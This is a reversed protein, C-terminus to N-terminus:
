RWTKSAAVWSRSFEHINIVPESPMSAEVSGTCHSSGSVPQRPSNAATAPSNSSAM